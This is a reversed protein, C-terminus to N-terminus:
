TLNISSLWAVIVTMDVPEDADMLCMFLVCFMLKLHQFLLKFTFLEIKEVYSGTELNCVNKCFRKGSWGKPQMGNMENANARCLHFFCCGAM